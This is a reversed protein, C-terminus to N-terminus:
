CNEKSSHPVPLTFWFTSGQGPTSEVGIQGQHRAIIMRSIYLGLGLGVGAGTQVQIDKGRHFREWIHEQEELPLGPGHDRVWVRVQEPEVEVGVDVPQDAPSYKLANTLYNTVVQEIRGADAYISVSLDDPCQLGIVREPAVQQQEEVVNRVITVLNAPSPRLELKGAQIRSIDVLDDVLRQLREVQLSMRSLQEVAPRLGPGVMTPAGTEGRTLNCLRRDAVQLSLKLSTLPTKLEHSAIGLFTDMQAKIEGLALESARAEAWGHLLRDQELVVAGLRALTSTLLIEDERSSDNDAELYDVLLTGVLEEGVRMPVLRGRQAGFLLYQFHEPLYQRDLPAPEGAYLRAAIAPSYRDAVSQPPSWSSWWAQEQERHLGVETVPALQGTATNVASISVRRCGLVSQTLEALRRAVVPLIAPVAPHTAAEDSVDVSLRSPRDQVMAEEMAVMAALMERTRQSEFRSQAEAQTLLQAREMALHRARESRGALVSISVGVVLYVALGIGDALNSIGWSFRPTGVLFDLLLISMVTALLSPGTGWGLAILVVGLLTFIAYYDFDPALFLLVLMLSVAAGEILAAAVYGFLPHRLQEPLWKPAFTNEQIWHILGIWPKSSHQDQPPVERQGGASPTVQAASSEDGSFSRFRAANMPSSRSINHLLVAM